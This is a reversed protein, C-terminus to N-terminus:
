ENRHIGAWFTLTAGGGPTGTFDWAVAVYRDIATYAGIDLRAADGAAPDAADVETTIAAFQGLTVFTVGDPSDIIDVQVGTGGDLDLADLHLHASGGLRTSTRRATGGTGGVTVNVAITFTTALPTAVVAHSGNIDPTSGTHGAITVLDGAQLGHAAATTIVTPNAVSSSTVNVAAAAWGNDVPGAQTDGDGTEAALAHLSKCMEVGNEDPTMVLDYATLSAPETTPHAELRLLNAAEVDEGLADTDLGWAALYETVTRQHLQAVFTQLDIDSWVGTEMDGYEVFGTQARTPSRQFPGTKDQTKPMINPASFKGVRGAASMVRGELYFFRQALSV